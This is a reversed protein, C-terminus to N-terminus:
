KWIGIFVHSRSAGDYGAISMTRKYKRANSYANKISLGHRYAAKGDSAAQLIVNFFRQNNIIGSNVYVPFQKGAAFAEFKKQYEKVPVPSVIRTGPLGDARFLATYMKSTKGVQAVAYSVPYLNANKAKAILADLQAKTMEANALFGEGDKKYFTMHRVQGNIVTSDIQALSYGKGTLDNFSAQMQPGTQLHNAAWQGKSPRWISNIFPKGGVTYVDTHEPWYGSEAMLPFNFGYDEMKMAIQPYQAHLKMPPWILVKGQPIPKGAFSEWTVNLGASNDFKGSLGRRFNVPVATVGSKQTSTVTGGKEMHIHLHPHSGTGSNGVKGLFQGAKVTVQKNAPVYIQSWASTVDPNAIPNPLLANNHPCISEPVTGTQFHAYEIRTGDKHEIWVHNGGGYVRGNSFEDYWKGDSNKKITITGLSPSPDMYGWNQPANRWCAIVKGAGIAYIPKGYSLYSDNSAKTKVNYKVWRASNKNLFALEKKSPAQTWKDNEHKVIVLDYGFEQPHGSNSHMARGWYWREASKLDEHRFPLDYQQAVTVFNRAKLQANSTAPRRKLTKLDNFDRNEAMIFAGQEAVAPQVSLALLAFCVSFVSFHRIDMKVKNM